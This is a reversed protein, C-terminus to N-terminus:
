VQTKLQLYKKKYKLYKKEYYYQLETLLFPVNAIKDRMYASFNDMVKGLFPCSKDQISTPACVPYSGPIRPDITTRIVPSAFVCYSNWFYLNKNPEENKYKLYKEYHETLLRLDTDDPVLIKIFGQLYAVLNTYLHIGNFIYIVMIISMLFVFYDKYSIDNCGNGINCDRLLLYNPGLSEAYSKDFDYIGIEFKSMLIAMRGDQVPQKVYQAATSDPLRKIIINSFHMDNHQIKLINNLKFIGTLILDFINYLDQALKEVPIHNTYEHLLSDLHNNSFLKKGDIDETIIIKIPDHEGISIKKMAQELESYISPTLNIFKRHIMDNITTSKNTFPRLLKVFYKKINPDQSYIYDYVKGEYRLADTLIHMEPTTRPNHGDYFIKFYANKGKYIGKGIISPSIGDSTLIKVIETRGEAM